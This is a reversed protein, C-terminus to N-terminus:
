PLMPLAAADDAIDAVGAVEDVDVDAANAVDAYDDGAGRKVPVTLGKKRGPTM